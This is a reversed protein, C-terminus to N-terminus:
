QDLAKLVNLLTEKCEPELADIRPYASAAFESKLAIDQQEEYFKATLVNDLRDLAWVFQAEPTQRAEFEAFLEGLEPVGVKKVIQQMADAELKAKEAAEIEGPVFDGCMIEPLDHILAMKLCKEKDLASPALLMALMAVSFSHDADSESNKVNRKRWGNRKLQKMKGLVAVLNNIQRVTMESM